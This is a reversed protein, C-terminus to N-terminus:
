GGRNGWFESSGGPGSLTMRSTDLRHYNASLNLEFDLSSVLAEEFEEQTRGSLGGSHFGAVELSAEFLFDARCYLGYKEPETHEGYPFVHNDDVIEVKKTGLWALELQLGGGKNTKMGVQAGLIHSAIDNFAERAKFKQILTVTTANLTEFKKRHEAQRSAEEAAREAALDAEQRELGVNRDGLSQTQSLKGAQYREWISSM